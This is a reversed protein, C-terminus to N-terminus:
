FPINKPDVKEESEDDENEIVPIDDTDEKAAGEKVVELVIFEKEAGAINASKIRVIAQKGIFDESDPDNQDSCYAEVLNNVSQENLTLRRVIDEKPFKVKFTSVPKGNFNTGPTGEDLIELIDGDKVNDPKLFPEGRYDKM